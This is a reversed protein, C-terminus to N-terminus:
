LGWASMMIGFDVSNVFGDQNLDAKPKTTSKWYSLLIELDVSNVRGDGNLDIPRPKIAPPYRNAYDRVLQTFSYGSSDPLNYKPYPDWTQVVMDDLPGLSHAIKAWAMSNEYFTRDSDLPAPYNYDSQWVIIGFRIGRSRCFDSIERIDNLNANQLKVHAYDIDMHLFPLEYGAKEKFRIIWEKISGKWEEVSWKPSHPTTPWPEIDGVIINPDVSKASNIFRIVEDLSKEMSWDCYRKGQFLPEDMTILRVRGGLSEIKRILNLEGEFNIEVCTNANILSSELGFDIGWSNLKRLAVQLENENFIQEPTLNFPPNSLSTGWLMRYIQWDSMKFVSVFSRAEKWKDSETFLKKVDLSYLLNSAMWLKGNNSYSQLSINFTKPSWILHFNLNGTIDIGYAYLTHNQGDWYERPIYFNFGHDGPYGTAQNVGPRPKNAKISAIFKGQGAPGDLYFHIDTSQSPNDPDLTWGGAAGGASIIDFHGIPSAARALNAIFFFSILIQLFVLFLIKIKRERM